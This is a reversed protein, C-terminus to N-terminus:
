AAIPTRVTSVSHGGSSAARAPCRKGNAESRSSTTSPKRATAATTSGHCHPPKRMAAADSQSAASTCRSEPRASADEQRQMEQRKPQRDVAFRPEFPEQAPAILRQHLEGLAHRTKRSATCISPPSRSSTISFKGPAVACFCSANNAAPPTRQRDGEHEECAHELSPMVRSRSVVSM